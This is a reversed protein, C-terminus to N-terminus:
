LLMWYNGQLSLCLVLCEFIADRYASSMMLPQRCLCSDAWCETACVFCVSFVCVGFVCGVTVFNSCSKTHAPLKLALNQCDIYVGFQHPSVRPYNIEKRDNLCKKM